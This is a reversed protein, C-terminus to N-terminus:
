FIYDIKQLVAFFLILVIPKEFKLPPNLFFNCMILENLFLYSHYQLPYLDYKLAYSSAVIVIFLKFFLLFFIM